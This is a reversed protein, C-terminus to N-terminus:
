GKTAHTLTENGESTVCYEITRIDQRKSVEEHSELEETM